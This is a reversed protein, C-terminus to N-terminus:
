CDHWRDSSFSSMKLTGFDTIKHMQGTTRSLRFFEDSACLSGTNKHVLFGSLNKQSGIFRELANHQSHECTLFAIYKQTHDLCLRSM